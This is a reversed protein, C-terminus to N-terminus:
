RKNLLILKLNNFGQQGIYNNADLNKLDLNDFDVKKMIEQLTSTDVGSLDLNEVNSMGSSSLATRLGEMLDSRNNLNLDKLKEGIKGNIASNGIVGGVVGTGAAIAGYKVRNASTNKDEDIKVQDTENGTKARYLSSYAGGTIGVNEQAYLNMNAKDLIVESEIGPKMGLSGKREKLSQALSFYEDRLSMMTADNGGPLEIEDMGGKVSKGSGYECRFTEIYAAMDQEANKDARQEALGQALQMGGIGTAATTAATLTRNALSQENDHANNYDDKLGPLKNDVCENKKQDYGKTSDDCKCKPPTGTADDPCGNPTACGGNGDPIMDDPCECRNKEANYEKSNKCDCNPAKGNPETADDPCKLVCKTDGDPVFGEDCVCGDNGNPHKNMGCEVIGIESLTVSEPELKIINEVDKALTMDKTQYGMFSVKVSNSPLSCIVDVGFVGDNNTTCGVGPSGNVVINAWPLTEQTEADLVKGYYKAQQKVEPIKECIPNAANAGGILKYGSKSSTKYECKNDVVSVECNCGESVACPKCKQCIGNKMIELDGCRATETNSDICGAIVKEDSDLLTVLNAGTKCNNAKKAVDLTRCIGKSGCIQIEDGNKATAFIPKGSSCTYEGKKNTKVTYHEKYFGNSNNCTKMSCVLTGSSDVCFGEGKASDCKDTKKKGECPNSNVGGGSNVGSTYDTTTTTKTGGSTTTRRTTQTTNPSGDAGYAFTYPLWAVLGSLLFAFIYKKM